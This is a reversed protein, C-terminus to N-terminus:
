KSIHPKSPFLTIAHKSYSLNIGQYVASVKCLQGLFKRKFDLRGQNSCQYSSGFQNQLLGWPINTKKKLYSFRYTLWFYIDLALPSKKLIKLAEMDIPVPFAAIEDFFKESLELTSQWSIEKNKSSNWWLDYSDIIHLNLGSSRQEDQYICSISASFLRKSQDRLRAISGWRGGTPTLGLKSMFDSLSDGLVLQRQKTRVAETTIWALLLRPITGYPLGVDSSSFMKLTYNGNKRIFTNSAIKRHPMTAQVLSRGMFGLMGAEKAEREQLATADQIFRDFNKKNVKENNGTSL